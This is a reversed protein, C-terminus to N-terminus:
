MDIKLDSGSYYPRPALRSIQRDQWNPLYSDEQCNENVM